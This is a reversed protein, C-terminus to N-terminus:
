IRSRSERGIIQDSWSHEAFSSNLFQMNSVINWKGVVVIGSNVLLV